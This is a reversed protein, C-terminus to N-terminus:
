RKETNQPRVDPLGTSDDRVVPPHPDRIGSQSNSGTGIKGGVQEVSVVAFRGFDQKYGYPSLGVYKGAIELLRKLDDPSIGNPLWLRAEIEDGVLFAEHEKFSSSSYWRRYIKANGRIEPDAQIQEVESTFRGMAKAAFALSCRWWSQLFVVNGDKSRMMLDRQERRENGLCPTTFRLRVSVEM